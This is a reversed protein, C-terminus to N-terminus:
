PSSTHLFLLHILPFKKPASWILAWAVRWCRTQMFMQEGAHTITSQPDPRTVFLQSESGRSYSAQPLQQQEWTYIGQKEGPSAWTQGWCGGFAAPAATTKLCWLMQKLSRASLKTPAKLEQGWLQSHIQKANIVQGVEQNLNKKTVKHINVARKEERVPELCILLSSAASSPCIGTQWSSVTYLSYRWIEPIFSETTGSTLRLNGGSPCLM